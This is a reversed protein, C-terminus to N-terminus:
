SLWEQAIWRYGAASFSFPDTRPITHSNWILEGTKLHWWMDPDAFRSRVTFVTLVILLSLLVAPFSFAFQSVRRWRSNGPDTVDCGLTPSIQAEIPMQSILIPEGTSDRLRCAVDVTSRYLPM